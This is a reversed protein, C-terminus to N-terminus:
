AQNIKDSFCLLNQLYTEQNYVEVTYHNDDMKLVNLYSSTSSTFFDKISTVNLMPILLGVLSTLLTTRLGISLHSQFNIQSGFSHIQNKTNLPTFSSLAQM